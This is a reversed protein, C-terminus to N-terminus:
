RQWLEAVLGVLADRTASPTGLQPVPVGLANAIMRNGRNIAKSAAEAAIRNEQNHHQSRMNM